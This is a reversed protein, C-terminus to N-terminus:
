RKIFLGVIALVALGVFFAFETALWALYAFKHKFLNRAKWGQVFYAPIIVLPFLAWGLCVTGGFVLVPIRIRENSDLPPLLLSVAVTGLFVVAFYKIPHDVPLTLTKRLLGNM